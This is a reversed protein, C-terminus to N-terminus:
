LVYTNSTERMIRQNNGYLYSTQLMNSLVVVFLLIAAFIYANNYGGKKEQNQSINKAM